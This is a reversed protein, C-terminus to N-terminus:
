KKFIEQIIQDLVHVSMDNFRKSIINNSLLIEIKDEISNSLLIEKGPALEVM